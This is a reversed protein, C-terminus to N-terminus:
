TLYAIATAIVAVVLVFLVTAVVAAAILLRKAEHTLRQPLPRPDDAFLVRYARRLVLFGFWRYAM